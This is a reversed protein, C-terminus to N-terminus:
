ESVPDIRYRAGPRTEFTCHSGRLRLGRGSRGEEKVMIEKGSWPNVLQCTNGKHSYITLGSIDGDSSVASVEFAGTARYNEFSGTYNDPVAPFVRIWGGRNEIMDWGAQSQLLNEPGLESGETYEGM